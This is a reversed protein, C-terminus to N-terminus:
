EFIDNAQILIWVNCKTSEDRYTGKLTFCGQEKKVGNIQHLFQTMQVISNGLNQIPWNRGKPM